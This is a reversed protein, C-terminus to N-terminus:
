KDNFSLPFQRRSTTCNMALISAINTGKRRYAASQVCPFMPFKAHGQLEAMDSSRLVAECVAAPHMRLECSAPCCVCALFLLDQEHLCVALSTASVHMVIVCHSRQLSVLFQKQNKENIQSCLVLKMGHGITLAMSGMYNQTALGM